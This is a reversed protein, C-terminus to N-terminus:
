KPNKRAVYDMLLNITQSIIPIGTLAETDVFGGISLTNVESLVRRGDDDVLTDAGFMFIGAERMPERLRDIIEQEREDPASAVAQGGQAVNCLWSDPPPLRLAAAQIQGDVVIIRKDGQHVNKLFKMALYGETEIYQRHQHLFTDTDWTEDGTELVDGHIRVLGKGGFERLPKLVIPFERAFRQIEAVSHCLQLPPCIDPFQVLFAKSSTLEIGLPHNIVTQGETQSALFHLFASSVPRALRMLIFDYSSLQRAQLPQDFWTGAASYAFYEDVPRVWLSAPQLDTFFSRNEAHGRSLIDIDACRAHDKLVPLLDYVPNFARHAKHDTIVLCRYTNHNM